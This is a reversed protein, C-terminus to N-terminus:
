PGQGCSRGSLPEPGTGFVLIGGPADVRPPDGALLMRCFRDVQRISAEGPPLSTLVTYGRDNLEIQRIRFRKWDGDLQLSTKLISLEAGRSAVDGTENVSDIVGAIAERHKEEDSESEIGLLAATGGIVILIVTFIGRRRASVFLPAL